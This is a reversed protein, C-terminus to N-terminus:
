EGQAPLSIKAGSPIVEDSARFRSMCIARPLGLWQSAFRWISFELSHSCSKKLESAASECISAVMHGRCVAVQTGGQEEVLIAFVSLVTCFSGPLKPQLVGSRLYALVRPVTKGCSSDGYLRPRKSANM